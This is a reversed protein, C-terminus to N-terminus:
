PNWPLKWRFHFSSSPFAEPTSPTDESQCFGRLTRIRLCALPIVRDMGRSRVLACRTAERLKEQQSFRPQQYGPYGSYSSQTTRRITEGERSPRSCHAWTRSLIAIGAGTPHAESRRIFPTSRETIFAPQREPHTGAVRAEPEWVQRASSDIRHDWWDSEPFTWCGPLSWTSLHGGWRVSDQTWDANSSLWTPWSLWFM